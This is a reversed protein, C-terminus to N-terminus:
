PSFASDFPLIPLLIQSLKTSCACTGNFRHISVVFDQQAMHFRESYHLVDEVPISTHLERCTSPEQM